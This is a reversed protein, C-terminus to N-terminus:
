KRALDNLVASPLLQSMLSHDSTLSTPEVKVRRERHTAQSFRRTKGQRKSKRRLKATAISM